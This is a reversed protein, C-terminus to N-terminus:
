AHRAAQAARLTARDTGNAIRDARQRDRRARAEARRDDRRQSSVAMRWRIEVLAVQAQLRFMAARAKTADVKIDFLLGDAISPEPATRVRRTVHAGIAGM